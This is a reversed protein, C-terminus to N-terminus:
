STRAKCIFDKWLDDSVAHEPPWRGEIYEIPEPSDPEPTEDAKLAPQSVNSQADPTELRLEAWCRKAALLLVLAYSTTTSPKM